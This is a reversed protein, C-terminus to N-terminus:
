LRRGDGADAKGRPGDSVPEVLLSAFEVPDEPAPQLLQGTRAFTRWSSLHNAPVGHRRVVANGSSGPVLTEAVIRAKLEDSWKRNRRGRGGVPLVELTTEM